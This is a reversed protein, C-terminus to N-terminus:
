APHPRHMQKRFSRLRLSFLVLVIGYSLAHIGLGSVLSSARANRGIISVVAIALSALGSAVFLIAEGHRKLARSFAIELMGSGLANAITFWVLWALKLQDSLLLWLGLALM